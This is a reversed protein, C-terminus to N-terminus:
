YCLEPETQTNWSSPTFPQGLEKRRKWERLLAQYKKRGSLIFSGGEQYEVTWINYPKVKQVGIFMFRPRTNAQSGISDLYFAAQRDYDYTTLSKLFSAYDRQSTSKLDIVLRNRHLLDLKSKLLLGTAEDEWLQVSEKKSFQLAWKCFKDTRVQAALKHILTLDVGDPVIRDIQNSADPELILEHLTSGFTLAKSPMPSAQNFIFNKFETLDSNSIRPISRYDM